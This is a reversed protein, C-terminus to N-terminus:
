LPEFLHERRRSRSEPSNNDESGIPEDVKMLQDDMSVKLM